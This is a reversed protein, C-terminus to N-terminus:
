IEEIVIRYGVGYYVDYDPYKKNIEKVMKLALIKLETQIKQAYTDGVGLKGFKKEWVPRMDIEISKTGAFISQKIDKSGTVKELFKFDVDVGKIDIKIQKIYKKFFDNVEKVTKKTDSFDSIKLTFKNKSTDFVFYGAKGHNGGRDPTASKKIIESSKIELSPFYTYQLYDSVEGALYNEDSFDKLKPMDKQKLQNAAENLFNKFKM